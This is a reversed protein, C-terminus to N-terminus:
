HPLGSLTSAFLSPRKWLIFHDQKALGLTKDKEMCAIQAEIGKLERELRLIKRRIAPNPHRKKHRM